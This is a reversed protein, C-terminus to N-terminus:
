VIDPKFKLYECVYNDLLAIAGAGNVAMNLSEITCGLSQALADHVKVFFSDDLRQAGSGITQSSGVFLIRHGTKGHGVLNELSGAPAPKPLPCEESRVLCYPEASLRSRRLIRPKRPVSSLFVPGAWILDRSRSYGQKLLEESPAPEETIIRNWHNFVEYRAKEVTRVLSFKHQTQGPLPRSIIDLDLRSWYFYDFAFVLLGASILFLNFAMVRLLAVGGLGPRRIFFMGASLFFVFLFIFLLVRPRKKSNRFSETYVQRDADEIYVDDVSVARLGGRFGFLQEPAAAERFEAIEKEDLRVTLGNEGFVADLLHRGAGLPQGNLAATSIFRGEATSRFFMSGYSRNRSIRLGSFGSSSKNFILNLYGGDSIKFHFKLQKPRLPKKFLVENFGHWNGLNLRNRHLASRTILFSGSEGVGVEMKRKSNLWNANLLLTNQSYLFVEAWVLSNAAMLAIVTLIRKATLGFIEHGWVSTQPQFELNKDM